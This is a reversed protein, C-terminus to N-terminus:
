SHGGSVDLLPRACPTSRCLAAGDGGGVSRGDGGGSPAGAPGEAVPQVLAAAAAAPRGVARWRGAAGDFVEAWLPPEPLAAGALLTGCASAPPM